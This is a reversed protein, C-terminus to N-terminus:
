IPATASPELERIKLLNRRVAEGVAQASASNQGTILRGEVVLNKHWNERAQFQAEKKRLESEPFIPVVEALGTLLIERDSMATLKKGKALCTGDSLQVHLLGAGGQSVAGVIGGQEYIERVIKQLAKSDAFDWLAGYGGALVVAGYEEAKVFEVSISHAIKHQFTKREMYDRNIPDSMDRSNEDLRAPGGAISCIDVHIGVREFEFM